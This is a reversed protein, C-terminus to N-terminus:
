EEIPVFGNETENKFIIKDGHPTYYGPVYKISKATTNINIRPSLFTEFILYAKYTDSLTNSSPEYIEKFYLNGNPSNSYVIWGHTNNFPKYTLQSIDGSLIDGM